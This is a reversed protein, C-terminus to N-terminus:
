TDVSMDMKLKLMWTNLFDCQGSNRWCVLFYKADFFKHLRVYIKLYRRPTGKTDENTNENTHEKTDEITNDKTDEMNDENTDEM